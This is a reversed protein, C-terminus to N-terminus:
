SDPNSDGDTKESGEVFPIKINVALGGGPPESLDFVHGDGYLQRLRKRTNTLGIGNESPSDHSIGRGDDQVWLHLVKEEARAGIRVCGARKLPAIGHSISNEVLPQLVMGPVLADLTEPAIEWKIKLRDELLTQQIQIYKRLFDLEEKLTIEQKQNSKLSLRLLDSLDSLCRDAQKPNRFILASIANLTNFLFHPNLQSKLIQLQAEALNTQLKAARVKEAQYNRYWIIAQISILIPVYTLAHLRFSSLLMAKLGEMFTIDPPIWRGGMVWYIPVYILVWLIHIVVCLPVYILFSRLIHKREIPYRKVFFIIIPSLLGWTYFQLLSWELDRFYVSPPQKANFLSPISSLQYFFGLLTWIGFALLFQKLWYPYQEYVKVSL